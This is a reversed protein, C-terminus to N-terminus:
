NEGRRGDPQVHLGNLKEKYFVVNNQLREEEPSMDAAIKGYNYADEWQELQWASIAVLDYAMHGWAWAESMFDNTKEKITIAELSAEKCKDWEKTIYYHNALALVAERCYLTQISEKLYEEAKQPHCKALYRLAYAKEAPFDTYKLYEEFVARAELYKKKFFLERGYYYLTRADTPSEQYAMELMPLYQGRSKENDPLHHIELGIEFYFEPYDGYTVLVEHIPHRWRYNHRKHVRNGYFEVTPKGNADFDTVLKHKPRINGKQRFAKLLEKKWGAKLIEDMDMSICFDINAPLSVLAANRADDFRWPNVKIQIVNIGLEKAIKVTDDTSGTDAILHYDAEKSSEYWRKVHKAENLAITYVAVKM